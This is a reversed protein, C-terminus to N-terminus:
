PWQLRWTPSSGSWVKNTRPQLAMGCRVGARRLRIVAHAQRGCHGGVKADRDGLWVVDNAMEEGDPTTMPHRYTKVLRGAMDAALQFKRRAAGYSRAFRSDVSDM